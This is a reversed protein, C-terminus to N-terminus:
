EKHTCAGTYKHMYSTTYICTYTYIYVRIMWACICIKSSKFRKNGQTYLRRCGHTSSSTHAHVYIYIHIQAHIIYQPFIRMLIPVVHTHICTHIYTHICTRLYVWVVVCSDIYEHLFRIYTHTGVWGIQSSL